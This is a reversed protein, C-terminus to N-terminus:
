KKEPTAGPIPLPNQRGTQYADVTSDTLVILYMQNRAEEGRKVTTGIRAELNQSPFGLMRILSPRILGENRWTDYARLMDLLKSQKQKYTERGSKIFDVIKDYVKLDLNPYAENIASFLQGQGPQASTHGEYRGKVADTLIKDMKDSKLNAVGITEYFTSTYTSLENQNDLYQANLSTEMRVGASKASSACGVFSLIVILILGVVAGGIILGKNM